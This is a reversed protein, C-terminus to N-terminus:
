LMGKAFAAQVSPRTNMQHQFAALQPFDDINVGDGPLWSLVVYLYADSLVEMQGIPYPLSPLFDELYACCEAMRIPLMQKMDDFSSQQDAWRAGRLGHAHHPHMTGNLYSILERMKAAAYPDEPVLQPALYEVIAPTETLIGAPTELAPVRSKPNIERYADSTQEGSAFDVRRLTCDAGIEELLIAVAVSITKPAYHLTLM